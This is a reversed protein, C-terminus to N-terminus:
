DEGSSNCKDTHAGRDSTETDSNGQEHGSDSTTENIVGRKLRSLRYQEFGCGAEEM